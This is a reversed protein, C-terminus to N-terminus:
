VRQRSFAEFSPNNTSDYLNFRALETGDVRYFIMMPTSIGNVDIAKMEWNGGQWNLLEDVGIQLTNFNEQSLTENTVVVGTTEDVFKCLGRAVMIGATNTNDFTLSGEAMEVTVHNNVSTCNKITLGGHYGRVGLQSINGGNMSITPRDLGPINSYCNTMLTKSSDICVLNGDLACKDFFGNLYFGDMLICEQAIITNMYTGKLQCRYFQSNKVDQGNLDIKSLSLSKITMNKMNNPIVADGTLVINRINNNEAYDKADNINNFPYRQSGDGNVLLETNCYVEGSLNNIKAISEGITNPLNHLHIDTNLIDEVITSVNSKFDDINTTPTGNVSVINANVTGTTSTGSTVVTQTLSSTQMILTTTYNPLPDM